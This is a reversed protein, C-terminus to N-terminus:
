ESEGEPEVEVRLTADIEEHLHVKVEHSGVMKIPHPISIHRRDVTIGKQALEEAIQVNTISGYLRGEEGTRAKMTLTIGGIREAMAHASEARAAHRHRISAQQRELNKVSGETAPIALKRPLLFNRAYGDAVNAVAGAAGVGHVDELLIVKM